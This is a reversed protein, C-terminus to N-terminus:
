LNNDITYRDKEDLIPIIPNKTNKGLFKINLLNKKVDKKSPKKQAIKDEDSDSGEMLEMQSLGSESSSEVSANDNRADVPSISLDKPATAFFSSMFGPKKNKQPQEVNQRSDEPNLKSIEDKIAQVIGKKADASPLGECIISGLLTQSDLAKELMMLRDEISPINKIENLVFQKKDKANNFPIGNDSWILQFEKRLEDSEGQRGLQFLLDCKIEYYEKIPLTSLNIAMEIDSLALEREAQANNSYFKRLMSLRLQCRKLYWDGRESDLYIAKTYGHIAVQYDSLGGKSLTIKELIEKLNALHFEPNLPEHVLKSSVPIATYFHSSELRAIEKTIESLTGSSLSPDKGMMGGRKAWMVKGLPTEQRLAQRLLFIKVPPSAQDKILSLLREKNNEKSLFEKDQLFDQITIEAYEKLCDILLMEYPNIKSLPKGSDDVSLKNHTTVLEKYIEIAKVYEGRSAFEIAKDELISFGYEIFFNPHQKMHNLLATPNEFKSLFDVNSILRQLEDDRLGGSNKYVRNAALFSECAAQCEEHSIYAKALNLRAEILWNDSEIAKKYLNIASSHDKNQLAHHGEEALAMARIQNEARGFM